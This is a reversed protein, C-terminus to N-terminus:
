FMGSEVQERLESLREGDYMFYFPGQVSYSSKLLKMALATLSFIEGCYEVHSDDTIVATKSSDDAFTVVDGESLGVMSFRFPSRRGSNVDSVEVLSQYQKPIPWTAVCKDALRVGRESINEIVWNSEKCLERTLSFSSERYWEQKESFTKNSMEPNNNTLALNGLKNLNDAHLAVEDGLAIEWEQTLKQPMIHEISINTADYRPLGKASVSNQELVYLLYKMGKARLVGYIPRSLLAERFEEDSPFAFRGSGITISRWFSAVTCKEELNALRQLVNGAFQGNIGSSRTVKARFVLTLCANIMDSAESESIEELDLKELIYLLLSRASIAENLVVISYLARDIPKMQNMDINSDFVLRRYLKSKEHMDKLLMETVNPSGSYKETTGALTSYHEKFAAYLNKENIHQRRGRASFADSRKTFILYDVFFRVMNKPKVNEEIKYWYDKYLRVQIEYDLSMLLYNRLLDVDTLDLGTSNLSEFIEQPNESEVDLDVIVVRDLANRMEAIQIESLGEFRHYFFSYNAYISSEIEKESLEDPRTLESSELLKNYVADDRRNLHLKVRHNAAVGFGTNRLFTADIDKKFDQNDVFDHMAKMFLTITTIRQQGDIVTREHSNMSKTCITGLFHTHNDQSQAIYWIDDWLQKCNEETWDYNRQYVPIMFSVNTATLFQTINNKNVQM